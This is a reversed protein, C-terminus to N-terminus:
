ALMARFPRRLPIISTVVAKLTMVTAPPCECLGTRVVPTEQQDTVSGAVVTTGDAGGWLNRSVPHGGRRHKYAWRVSTATVSAANQARLSTRSALRDTRPTYLRPSLSPKVRSCCCSTMIHRVSSADPAYSLSRWLGNRRLVAAVRLTAVLRMQRRWSECKKMMMM